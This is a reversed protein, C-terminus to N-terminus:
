GIRVRWSPLVDDRVADFVRQIRLIESGGSFGDCAADPAAILQVASRGQYTVQNLAVNRPVLQDLKQARAPPGLSLAVLLVVLVVTRFSQRSM